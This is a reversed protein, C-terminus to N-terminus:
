TLIKYPTYNSCSNRLCHAFSYNSCNHIIEQIAYRIYLRKAHEINKFRECNRDTWEQAERKIQELLEPPIKTTTLEKM